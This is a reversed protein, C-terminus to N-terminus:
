FLERLSIVRGKMITIKGCLDISLNEVLNGDKFLYSSFIFFVGWGWGMPQFQFSMKGDEGRAL